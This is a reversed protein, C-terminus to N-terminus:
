TLQDAVVNLLGDIGSTHESSEAGMEIAMALGLLSIEPPFKLNDALNMTLFPCCFLALKLYRRWNSPLWGNKQLHKLLPILVYTTKSELFMNRVPHLQYNYEVIWTGNKDRFDIQTTDRKQHPFYMWMAFVNHFLPKVLDLLPNHRGAFAPDFYILKTSQKRKQFFVNGNHADGHGVVTIGSQKPHLVNIAEQILRDLNDRYVQGNIIWNTSRVEDLTYTKNPLVMKNNRDYFRELRGGTLRHYFLQHIPSHLANEASQFEISHYYLDLLHQDSDHQALTLEDLAASSGCEIQWALDFVSEDEIVDYILLQQGVTTSSFLPKIVPYGTESLQHANYYESIVTDAETHTKFFYRKGNALTLFGNFSNLSIALPRLEIQAIEEPYVQRLFQTLLDEAQKRDSFQLAQVQQLIDM